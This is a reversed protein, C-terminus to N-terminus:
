KLRPIFKKPPKDKRFIKERYRLSVFLLVLFVLPIISYPIYAGSVLSYKSDFVTKLNISFYITKLLKGQSRAEKAKSLLDLVIENSTEAALAEAEFFYFNANEELLSISKNLDFLIEDLKVLKGHLLSDLGSKLLSDAELYNKESLFLNFLNTSEKFSSSDIVALSKRYKVITDLSIPPVYGIEVLDNKDVSGLEEELFDLSSYVYRLNSSFLRLSEGFLEYGKRKSDDLATGFDQLEASLEEVVTSASNVDNSSLSDSLSSFLANIKDKKNLLDQDAFDNSFLEEAVSKLEFYEEELSNVPNGEVLSAQRLLVVATEFNQSSFEKSAKNIAKIVEPNKSSKLENLLFEYEACFEKAREDKYKLNSVLAEFEHLENIEDFSINEPFSNLESLISKAERKIEDSYSDSLIHLEEKLSFVLNNWYLPDYVLVKIYYEKRQNSNISDLVFFLKNDPSFYYEVEKGGSDIFSLNDSEFSYPIEVEVDSLQNVTINTLSLSYILEEFGKDSYNRSVLVLDHKLPSDVFYKILVSESESVDSLVFYMKNSEFSFPVSYGKFLVVSSDKSAEEPLFTNVQLKSLPNLCALSIERWYEARNSNLCHLSDRENSSALVGRFSFLIKSSGLPVSSLVLMLKKNEFSFSDVISSEELVLNKTVGVLEISLETKELSRFDNTITLELYNQSSINALPIDFSFVRQEVKLALYEGCCKSFLSNSVNLANKALLFLEDVSNLSGFLIKGRSDFSGSIKRFDETFKDYEPLPLIGEVRLFDLYDKNSSLDSFCDELEIVSSNLRYFSMIRNKLLECRELDEFSYSLNTKLYIFDREEQYFEETFYFNSLDNICGDLDKLFTSDLLSLDGKNGLFLEYEQIARKCVVLQEVVTDKESYSDIILRIKNASSDLIFNDEKDLDSNIKSLRTDCSNKIGYLVEERSNDLSFILESLSVNVEKLDSLTNGLSANNYRYDIVTNNQRKVLENLHKSKESYISSIDLFFGKESTIISNAELLSNLAFIFNSDIEKFGPNSFYGLKKGAEEILSSNSSIISETEKFAKAKDSSILEFLDSFERVISSNTGGVSEYSTLLGFSDLKELFPIALATGLGSLYKQLFFIVKSFSPFSIKNLIKGWFSGEELNFLSSFPVSVFFDLSLGLKSLKSSFDKSFSYLSGAYTNSNRALYEPNTFIVLNNNLVLYDSYIDEDKIHNVGFESTLYDHELVIIKVSLQNAKDLERFAELLNSNVKYLMVPISNTDGSSSSCVENIERLGENAKNVHYYSNALSTKYMFLNQKIPSSFYDENIKFFVSDVKNFCEKPSDCEPVSIFLSESLNLCKEKYSPSSDSVCGALLFVLFVFGVWYRM